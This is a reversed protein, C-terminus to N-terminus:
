VEASKTRSAVLPRLVDGTFLWRNDPEQRLNPACPNVLLPRHVRPQSCFKLIQLAHRIVAGFDSAAYHRPNPIPVRFRFQRNPRVKMPLPESVSYRSPNVEWFATYPRVKDESPPSEGYEYITAEPM